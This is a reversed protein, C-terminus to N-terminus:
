LSNQPKNGFFGRLIGEAPKKQQPTLSRQSLKIKNEVNYIITGQMAYVKIAIIDFAIGIGVAPLFATLVQYADLLIFLEIFIFFLRQNSSFEIFDNSEPSSHEM